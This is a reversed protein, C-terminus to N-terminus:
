LSLCTKTERELLTMHSVMALWTTTMNKREDAFPTHSYTMQHAVTSLKYKKRCARSHGSTTPQQKTVCMTFLNRHTYATASTKVIISATTSTVITMILSLKERLQNDPAMQSAMSSTPSNEDLSM